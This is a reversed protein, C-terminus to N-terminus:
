TQPAPLRTSAGSSAERMFIREMSELFRHRPTVVSRNGARGGTVILNRPNTLIFGASQMPQAIQLNRQVERAIVNEAPLFSNV